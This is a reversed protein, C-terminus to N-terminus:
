RESRRPDHDDELLPVRHESPGRLSQRLRRPVRADGYLPPVLAFALTDAGVWGWWIGLGFDTDYLLWRWRGDETRPRWWKLNNGPWDWNDIFIQGIQYDIYSPIEVRTSLWEHTSADSRDASRMYEITEMWHLNDGEVVSSEWELIDVDDHGYKEAIMHKDARERLNYMGWSEGNIYTLTARDRLSDVDM